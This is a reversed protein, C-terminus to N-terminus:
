LWWGAQGGARRAAIFWFLNVCWAVEVVSIFHSKQTENKRNDPQDERWNGSGRLIGKGSLGFEKFRFDPWQQYLPANLAMATFFHAALQPDIRTLCDQLPAVPAWRHYWTVGSFAQDNLGHLSGVVVQAHWGCAFQRGM